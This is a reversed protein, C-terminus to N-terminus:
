SSELIWNDVRGGPLGVFKHTLSINTSISSFYITVKDHESIVNDFLLLILNSWSCRTPGTGTTLFFFFFFFPMATFLTWTVQTGATSLHKINLGYGNHM